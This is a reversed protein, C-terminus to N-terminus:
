CSEAVYMRERRFERGDGEGEWWELNDCFMPNLKLVPNKIQTQM